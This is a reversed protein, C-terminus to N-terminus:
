AASQEQIARIEQTFARVKEHIQKAQDTVSISASTLMEAAQATRNGVSEVQSIAENVNGVNASASSLHNAIEHASQTQQEVASAIRMSFRDLDRITQSIAQITEVSRHTARQIAEIRRSIDQTAKTTQGALSKV